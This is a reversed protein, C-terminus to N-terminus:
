LLCWRYLAVRRTTLEHRWAFRALGDADRARLRLAPCGLPGAALAGEASGNEAVDAGCRYPEALLPWPGPPRWTPTAHTCCRSVFRVRLSTGFAFACSLTRAVRRTATYLHLPSAPHPSGEAAEPSTVGPQIREAVGDLATVDGRVECDEYYAGITCIWGEPPLCTGSRSTLSAM